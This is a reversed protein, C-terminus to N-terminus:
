GRDRPSPSTYLLCTGDYLVHPAEDYGAAKHTLVGRGHPAGQVAAGGLVADVLRPRCQLPSQLEVRAVRM